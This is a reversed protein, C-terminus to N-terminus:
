VSSTAHSRAAEPCPYRPFDAPSASALLLHLAVALEAPSLPWLKTGASTTAFAFVKGTDGESDLQQLQVAQAHAEGASRLRPQLGSRAGGGAAAPVAAHRTDSLRPGGVQYEVRREERPMLQAAAGAGGVRAIEDELGGGDPQARGAAM